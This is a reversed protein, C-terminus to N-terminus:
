FAVGGQQKNHSRPHVNKIAFRGKGHQQLDENKYRQISENSAKIIQSAYLGYNSDIKDLIKSNVNISEGLGM